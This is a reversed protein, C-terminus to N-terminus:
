DALQLPSRCELSQRIPGVFTDFELEELATAVDEGSIIQRKAQKCIDNATATVYAIFIKSSEAFALLADKNLQVERKQDDTEAQPQLTILKAKVIRKVLAKPLDADEAAM